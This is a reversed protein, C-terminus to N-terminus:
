LGNGLHLVVSVIILPRSFLKALKKEKKFHIQKDESEKYFIKLGYMSFWAKMLSHRM